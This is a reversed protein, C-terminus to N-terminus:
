AKSKAHFLSLTGLLAWAIIFVAPIQILGTSKWAWLALVPTASGFQIGISYTLSILQYRNKVDYLNQIWAHFPAIFWAVLLVFCLKMIIIHILSNANLLLFLPYSVIITTIASLIMSKRPTLLDALAGFLPLVLMYIFLVLTNIVLMQQTSINNVLPVFANMFVAPINYLASFFGAAGISWLLSYKYHTISDRLSVKLKSIPKPNIAQFEPTEPINKRLYLGFLATLFGLLYAIRWYNIPLYSIIAAVLAAILIGSVACACYLGSRFGKHKKSHELMFIAGGNYEGGAFFKQSVNLLALLIPAALGITAYTPMCGILGTAIAMGTLSLILARKRGLRDGMKGLLFGGLPRSILGLPYIAFALILANVPNMEPLFIGTLIPAMFGYLANDYCELITGIMSAVYPRQIITKINPATIQKSPKEIINEQTLMTPTFILFFCLIKFM